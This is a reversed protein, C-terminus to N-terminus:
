AIKIMSLYLKDTQRDSLEPLIFHMWDNNGHKINSQLSKKSNNHSGSHIGKVQPNGLWDCVHQIFSTLNTGAVSMQALGNTKRKKLIQCDFLKHQWFILRSKLSHESSHQM